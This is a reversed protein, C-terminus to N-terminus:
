TASRNRRLAWRSPAPESSRRPIPLTPMVIADHEALAADVERRLVGRGTGARVYDERPHATGNTTEAEGATYLSRANREITPAHYAAAEALGIHLYIPSIDRAHRIEVDRVVAGADRLRTIASEFATRIEDDLLDCFYARPYPSGCGAFRRRPLRVRRAAAASFRTSFSIRTASPQLSPASTISRDRSRCSAM